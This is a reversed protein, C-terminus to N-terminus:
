AQRVRIDVILRAGCDLCDMDETYTESGLYCIEDVQVAHSHPKKPKCTPCTRWFGEYEVREEGRCETCKKKM